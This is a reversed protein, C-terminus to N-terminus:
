ESSTCIILDLTGKHEKLAEAPEDGTMLFHSAGLAMADDKKHASHSIVTVEAGMAKASITLKVIPVRPASFKCSFELTDSDVSGSLASM